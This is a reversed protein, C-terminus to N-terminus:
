RSLPYLDRFFQMPQVPTTTDPRIDSATRSCPHLRLAASWQKAIMHSGAFLRSDAGVRTLGGTAFLDVFSLDETLELLAM